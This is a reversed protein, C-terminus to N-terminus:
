GTRERRSPGSLLRTAAATLALAIVAILVYLLDTGSLGLIRTGDSARVVPPLTPGPQQSPTSTPNDRKRSAGGAGRSAGGAGSTGQKGGGGTSPPGAPTSGAVTGSSSGGAGGKPGNLLTAGLIAQSGQGPGGYGSLLSGADAAAPWLALALTTIGATIIARHRTM